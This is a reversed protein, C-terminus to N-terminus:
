KKTGNNEGGAKTDKTDKNAVEACKNFVDTIVKTIVLNVYSLVEYSKVAGPTGTADEAYIDEATDLAKQMVVLTRMVRKLVPYRGVIKYTKQETNKTIKNKSQKEDAYDKNIKM